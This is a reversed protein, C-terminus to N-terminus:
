YITFHILLHDIVVVFMVFHNAMGLLAGFIYWKFVWNFHSYTVLQSPQTALFKKKALYWLAVTYLCQLFDIDGTFAGSSLLFNFTPFARFISSLSLLSIFCVIKFRRAVTPDNVDVRTCRSSPNCCTYIACYSSVHIFKSVVVTAGPFFPLHSLSLQKKCSSKDACVQSSNQLLQM